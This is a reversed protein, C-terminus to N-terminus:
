AIFLFCHPKACGIKNRINTMTAAAIIKVPQRTAFVVLLVLVDVIGELLVEAASLAIAAPLDKLPSCQLLLPSVVKVCRGIFAASKLM